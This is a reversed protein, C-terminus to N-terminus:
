RALDRLVAAAIGRESAELERILAAIVSLKAGATQRRLARALTRAAAIPNSEGFVLAADALLRDAASV